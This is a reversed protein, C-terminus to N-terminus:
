TEVGQLYAHIYEILKSIVIRRMFYNYDRFGCLSHLFEHKINEMESQVAGNSTLKTVSAIASALEAVALM